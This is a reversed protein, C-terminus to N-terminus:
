SWPPVALTATAVPQAELGQWKCTGGELATGCWHMTHCVWPRYPISVMM